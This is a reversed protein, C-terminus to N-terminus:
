ARGREPVPSTTHHLGGRAAAPHEGDLDFAAAMAALRAAAAPVPAHHAAVAQWGAAGLRARQEPAALLAALTAAFRRPAAVVAGAGDPLVLGEVGAPTTVVPVGHALAELVKVKPGSSPPCPFAVVAAHELVDVSREFSGLLEVGAGAGVGAAHLHRGALLLRAGRVTARVEPWARLLTGLARRNPPWSWDAALVAVPEEVVPLPRDPVPYAIPVVTAPRRLHRGVRASYALVLGARRGVTREARAMQIDPAGVRGVARADALARFHLTGVSRPFRAVAAFSWLHDAVAVADAAPEWGARALEWRPRLVARLHARWMPGADFPEFRCWEPVPREPSSASRYWVWADVEHGLRRAGECWAWLDRGAATGEPHPLECAVVSLRV